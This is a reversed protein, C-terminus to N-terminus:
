MPSAPHGPATGQPIFHLRVKEALNELNECVPIGYRQCYIDVNAKRWFGPPCLVTAKHGFRGLELLSVPSLTKPDFCFIALAAKELATLEWTVQAHFHPNDASNVWAPDWFKRRPNLITIDLDGLRCILETQWDAAQGM